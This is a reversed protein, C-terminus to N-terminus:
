RLTSERGLGPPSQSSRWFNVLTFETLEQLKQQGPEAKAQPVPLHELLM